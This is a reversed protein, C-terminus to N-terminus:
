EVEGPCGQGICHPSQHVARSFGQSQIVCIECLDQLHVGGQIYVYMYMMYIYIYIYICVYTNIYVYTHLVYTYM